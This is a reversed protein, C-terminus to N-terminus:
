GLAGRATGLWCAAWALHGVPIMSELAVRRFVGPEGVVQDEPIRGSLKLARSDTARMGLTDWDGRPVVDLQARDAYVLTTRNQAADASARMTVLFADAYMGGTVVPGDRDLWLGGAAPQLAADATLLHAGMGHEPFGATEDLQGAHERLVPLVDEIAARGRHAEGTVM